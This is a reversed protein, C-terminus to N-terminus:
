FSRNIARHFERADDRFLEVVKRRADDDGAIAAKLLTCREEVSVLGERATELYEKEEPTPHDKQLVMQQVREWVLRSLECEAMELEIFPSILMAIKEVNGMGTSNVSDYIEGAAQRIEDVRRKAEPFLKEILPIIFEPLDEKSGYGNM